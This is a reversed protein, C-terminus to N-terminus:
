NLEYTVIHGEPTMSKLAVWNKAENGETTAYWLDIETKPATLRYRETELQKGRVSIVEKGVFTITVPMWEGTQANLLRRQKLMQPNWYAFSMPCDGLNSEGLPGKILFGDPKAEGSVATSKSKEVTNSGISSLCDNQWRERALHKYSFATIFLFKVKFEALSVVSRKSGEELITFTHQGMKEGDLSATFRLELTSATAPTTETAHSNEYFLVGSLLALFVCQRFFRVRNKM